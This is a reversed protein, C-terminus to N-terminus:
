NIKESKKKSNIKLNAMSIALQKKLEEEDTTINNKMSIYTKSSKDMFNRIEGMILQNTSKTNTIEKKENFNPNLYEKIVLLYNNNWQKLKDLAEDDTYNTQNKILNIINTTRIDM